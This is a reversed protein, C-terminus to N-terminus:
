AKACRTSNAASRIPCNARSSACRKTPPFVRGCAACSSTSPTPSSPPSSRKAAASEPLQAGLAAPGLRRRVRRAPTSLGPRAAHDPLVFGALAALRDPCSGSSRAANRRSTRGTRLRQRLTPGEEQTPRSPKEIEKLLAQSTRASSRPTSRRRAAAGIAQPKAIATVRKASRDNAGAFAFYGGGGLGSCLFM